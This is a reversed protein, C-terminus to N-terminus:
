VSLTHTFRPIGIESVMDVLCNDGYLYKRGDVSVVLLSQDIHMNERKALAALEKLVRYPSSNFQHAKTVVFIAVNTWRRKTTHRRFYAFNIAMAM